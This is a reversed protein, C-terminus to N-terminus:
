GPTLHCTMCLRSGTNDVRLFMGYTARSGHAYHCSTCQVRGDDLTLYQGEPTQDSAIHGDADPQQYRTATTPYEIGIPHTSRLDTGLDADPDIDAVMTTGTAGGFSDVAITGDHCSLCLRSASDSISTLDAGEHITWTAESLAHNWLHGADVNARHPTHCPRCVEDHAVTIDGTLNHPTDQVRGQVVIPLVGLGLVVGLVLFRPVYKM